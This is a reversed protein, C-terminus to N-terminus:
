AKRRMAASWSQSILEKLLESEFAGWRLSTWGYRGWHPEAWCDDPYTFLLWEQKSLPLKLVCEAGDSSLQAFIKADVRFSPNGFHAQEFAGTM